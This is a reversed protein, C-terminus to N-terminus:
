VGLRHHPHPSTPHPTYPSPTLSPAGPAGQLPALRSLSPQIKARVELGLLEYAQPGHRPLVCKFVSGVDATSTEQGCQVQSCPVACWAVQLALWICLPVSTGIENVERMVWMGVLAEVWSAEM